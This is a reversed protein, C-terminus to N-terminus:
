EVVHLTRRPTTVMREVARRLVVQAAVRHGPRLVAFWARGLVNHWHVVSAITVAVWHEDATVIIGARYDFLRTEGGGITETPGTERIGMDAPWTLAAAAWQEADTSVGAPLRIQFADAYDIRRVAGATRSDVPFPVERARPGSLRRLLRVWPSWRYPSRVTGTVVREANDLLDEVVADHLWRVAFPVLLRMRGHPRADLVHRLVCTDDALPEVELAHYGDLGIEPHFRCELWRGPEYSNVVYRVEGHGGDAGVSLPRDFRIPPWAPVPWLVDSPGALRGLLEGVREAPVPLVREHANRM